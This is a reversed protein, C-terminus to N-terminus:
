ALEDCFFISTVDDASMNLISKLKQIEERTFDSIGYMKKYLTSYNVGMERAVSELTKRNEVVKAKFKFADFM